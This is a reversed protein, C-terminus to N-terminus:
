KKGKDAADLAKAVPVAQMGMFRSLAATFTEAELETELQFGDGPGTPLGSKPDCVPPMKMHLRITYKPM